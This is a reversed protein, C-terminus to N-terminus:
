HKKVLCVALCKIGSSNGTFGLWEETTAKISVCDLSIKCIKAINEKMAPIHKAIKPEQLVVTSDINVITCGINWAKECVKGLLVLSDAGYFTKDSNPFLNGIDGLAAAGLLADMVAHVLVDADSHGLLGLRFPIECGGLFLKRGPVLKHVDYGQGIRFNHM